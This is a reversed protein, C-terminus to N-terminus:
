CLKRVIKGLLRLPATIAWSNSNMLTLLANLAEAENEPVVDVRPPLGKVRHMVSRISSTIRWSKSQYYSSLAEQVASVYRGEQSAAVQGACLFPLAKLESAWWGLNQVIREDLQLQSKAWLMRKDETIHEGAMISNSGDTRLCYECSFVARYVPPYKMALRLIFDYDEHRCMLEDVDGVGLAKTTDIVFSHVPIFNAQLHVLFSYRPKKFPRSRSILQGFENYLGNIVDCYGWASKTEVISRILGEYHDPYVKDDDDLFALFRRNAARKGINLGKSRADIDSHHILFKIEDFCCSWQNIVAEINETGQALTKEQCVVIVQISPVSQGSLIFLCNDLFSERGPMTRIVISIGNDM